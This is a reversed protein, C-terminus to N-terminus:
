PICYGASCYSPTVGPQGNPGLVQTVKGSPWEVTCVEWMSHLGLLHEAEFVLQSFIYLRVRALTQTDDYWGGSHWHVGVRYVANEPWDLALTEVGCGEVLHPDDSV